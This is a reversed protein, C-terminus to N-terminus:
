EMRRKIYEYTVCEWLFVSIAGRKLPALNKPMVYENGLTTHHPTIHSTFIMDFIQFGGYPPFPNEFIKIKM